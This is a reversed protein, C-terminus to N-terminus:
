LVRFTKVFRHLKPMIKGTRLKDYVFAWVTYQYATLFGNIVILIILSALGIGLSVATTLVTLPFMTALVFLVTYPIWLLMIAISAVLTGALQVVFLLVAIEFVVVPHKKFIILAEEFSDALRHKGRVASAIALISLLSISLTLVFFLVLVVLSALLNALVNTALLALPVTSLALLIGVLIKAVIDIVLIRLLVARPLDFLEKTKPERRSLAGKILGGQSAVSLSIIAIVIVLLVLLTIIARLPSIVLFQAFYIRVSDFYPILNSLFLYKIEQDAEVPNFARFGIELVAGTNLVGAFIGVFWLIRREWVLKLARWFLPRYTPKSM